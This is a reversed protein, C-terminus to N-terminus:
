TYFTPHMQNEDIKNKIKETLVEIKKEETAETIGRYKLTSAEKGKELRDM